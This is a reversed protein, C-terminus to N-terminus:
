HVYRWTTLTGSSLLRWGLTRYRCNGVIPDIDLSQDIRRQIEDYELQERLRQECVQQERQELELEEQRKRKLQEQERKYQEWERVLPCKEFVKKAEQKKESPGGDQPLDSNNASNKGNGTSNAQIIPQQNSM